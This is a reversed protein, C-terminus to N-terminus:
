FTLDENYRKLVRADRCAIIAPTDEIFATSLTYNFFEKAHTNTTDYNFKKYDSFAKKWSKNKRVEEGLKLCNEPSLKLNIRELYEFKVNKSIIDGGLMYRCKLGREDDAYAETALEWMFTIQDVGITRDVIIFNLTGPVVEIWAKSVTDVESEFLGFEELAQRYYRWPIKPLSKALVDDIKIEDDINQRVDAMVIKSELDTWSSAFKPNPRWIFEHRDEVVNMKADLGEFAIVLKLKPSKEFNNVTDLNKERHSIVDIVRQDLSLEKRLRFETESM